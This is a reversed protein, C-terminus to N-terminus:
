SSRNCLLCSYQIFFFALICFLYKSHLHTGKMSWQRTKAFPSAYSLSAILWATGLGQHQSLSFAFSVLVASSSITPHCWRNLPCSSPCDRPSLCPCPPRTHQLGHPWLSVPGLPQVVVVICIYLSLNVDVIIKLVAFLGFVFFKIISFFLSCFVWLPM